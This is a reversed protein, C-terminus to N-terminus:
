SEGKSKRKNVATMGRLYLLRAMNSRSRSEKKAMGDLTAFEEEDLRLLVTKRPTAAKPNRTRTDRVQEM